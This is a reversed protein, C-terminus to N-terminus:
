LLHHTLHIPTPHQVHPLFCAMGNQHDDGFVHAFLHHHM